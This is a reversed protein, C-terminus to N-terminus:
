GREAFAFLALGGLALLLLTGTSLSGVGSAGSLVSSPAAGGTSTIVTGNPTTTYTYTPTTVVAKAVAGGTNIISNLISTIDSAIGPSTPASPTTPNPAISSDCLGTLANIVCTSSSGPSTNSGGGQAAIEQCAFDDDACAQGLGRLGRRRTIPIVRATRGRTYPM